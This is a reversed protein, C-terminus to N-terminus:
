ALLHLIASEDSLACISAWPDISLCNVELVEEYFVLMGFTVCRDSPNAAEAFTQSRRPEINSWAKLDCNGGGEACTCDARALTLYAGEVFHM